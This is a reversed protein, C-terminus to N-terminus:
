QPVCAPQTTGTALTVNLCAYGNRCASANGPNCALLCFTSGGGFDVCAATRMAGTTDKPCAKTKSCPATCLGSPANVACTGGPVLACQSDGCCADGIWASTSPAFYSVFNTYLQWLNWFLWSGAVGGKAVLPTYQYIAATAESAPTVNVGDVTQLTVGVGWGGATVGAVGCSLSLSARLSAGVCDIQKDFGGLSPDCPAGGGPCGCGFAYEVKSPPSPYVPSAILGAHMEALVLLVLPNLDYRQAAIAIAESARLGSSTYTALFSPRDYPTAQLFGQVDSVSFFTQADTFSSTDVILNPDFPADASKLDLPDLGTQADGKSCALAVALALVVCRLLAKVGGAHVARARTALRTM